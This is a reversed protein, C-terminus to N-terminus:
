NEENEKSADQADRIGQRSSGDGSLSDKEAEWKKAKKTLREFLKDMDKKGNGKKNKKMM